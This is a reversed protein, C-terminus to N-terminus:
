EDTGQTLWSVPVLKIGDRWRERIAGRFWDELLEVHDMVIIQMPTETTTCYDLLLEYLRTVAIQDEDHVDLEGIDREPPYYAQSPQDLMLIAPVPRNRARFLKHLALHAVVHYGVWNAGSGINPLMLPGKITEAVVTLRRRDLRLLNHSHELALTRGLETLDRGVYDLAASLREELLDLDLKEELAAVEARLRAVELKLGDDATVTRVNELYYGIRGAVRAQETFQDQEIRLRENDAIRAAMDNQVTRLHGEIGARKAELEAVRAQLRPNDRHVSELQRELGVLSRAIDNVSPVPTALHSECLPCRDPHGNQGSVLGIASLRAQQEQAEVVYDSAERELKKLDGIEERVDQLEERLRRRRDELDALDAAPDDVTAYARQRPAAASTLIERLQAPTDAFTEPLVLGVRKAEGLLTEATVSAKSSLAQAEKYERERDRLRTRAEAYRKQNLYHDDGMAGVFYPLTDRIAGSIGDEGQRHFLLRPDAIEYQAQLCFLIAQSASAELAPRPSSRRDPVYLNESIGLLISLHDRLGDATVNKHFGGSSEPLGAVGRQFFIEDSARGAPGPNKRAIFVGEGDRDLLIAFWAVADRIVGEPVNCEGRGWCYDVIRVLSSKGTQPGGTVINLCGLEFMVERREDSHSYLAIARLQLTM